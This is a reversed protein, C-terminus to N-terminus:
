AAARNSYGLISQGPECADALARLEDPALGPWRAKGPRVLAAATELWRAEEFEPGVFRIFRGIEEHPHALVKEYSMAFVRASPLANLYETGRRIMDSWFRGFAPLEIVERRYRDASFLFRCWLASACPVWPSTGLLNFPHLPDIGLRRLKGFFRVRWRFYHHRQMSLATDRGDRYIHVFRADPFMRALTPVFPLSGGSREIWVSKGYRRALWEFVFRYQDALAERGRRRLAPALEDWTDEADDTIHPLTSGMIPPIDYPQYRSEPGFAYLFEGVTLGNELFVRGEPPLTNLRRFTAQGSLRRGRLARSALSTIFESVSLMGPHHRVIDSLM